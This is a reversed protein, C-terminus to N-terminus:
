EAGDARAALDAPTLSVDRVTENLEGLSPLTRGGVSLQLAGARGTWLLLDARDAPVEYGEGAKLIGMRVTQGTTRDYIKIWADEVATIVVPGGPTPVAAQAPVTEGGQTAETASPASDEAAPLADPPAASTSSVIDAATGPPVDFGDGAADPQSSAATEVPAEASPPAPPSSSFAGTGYAVAGILLAAVALSSGWVLARTPVRAEDIPTLPLTQLMHVTKTTEARFQAAAAEPDFGVARAFAKVFGITYPLAPLKDHDDAEIAALHRIPVRTNAAIAALEFGKKIRQQQLLEGIRPQVEFAEGLLAQDEM